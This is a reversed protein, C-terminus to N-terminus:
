RRTSAGNSPRQNMQRCRQQQKQQQQQQQQKQQKQLLIGVSYEELDIDVLHLWDCLSITYSSHRSEEKEFCLSDDIGKLAGIGVTECCHDLLM